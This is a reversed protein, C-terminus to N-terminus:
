PVGAGELLPMIVTPDIQSQDSNELCNVRFLPPFELTQKGESNPLILVWINKLATESDTLTMKIAEQVRSKVWQPAVNGFMVVLHQSDRIKTRFSEINEEPAGSDQSFQVQLGARLLLSGLEFAHLLDKQHTDLLYNASGEAVQHRTTLEDLTQSVQDIFAQQSSRVFRFNAGERQSNELAHLWDAQTSDEISSVDLTDPVWVLSLHSLAKVADTQARPFTQDFQGDLQGDIARGRFQDLLHISLEAQSLTTSLQQQHTAADYPPPLSPLVEVRDGMENLLRERFFRQSDATDALFVRPREVAAPSETLASPAAAQPSPMAEFTAAVAEVLDRIASAYANSNAQLPYGFADEAGDHFVFGSNPPFSDPWERHHINNILVNFLRGQNGVMIGGARQQNHAIFWELEQACYASRQYKRSHIVLFLASNEIAQQIERDFDTNGRLGATDVWIKLGNLDRRNILWNELYAHFQTVWGPQGPFATDDDHAYSIFIDYQYAPTYAM